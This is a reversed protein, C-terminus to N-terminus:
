GSKGVNKISGLIEGACYISVSRYGKLPTDLRHSVSVNTLVQITMMSTPKPQLNLRLGPPNMRDTPGASWVIDFGPNPLTVEGKVNLQYGKSQNTSDKIWAHWKGSKLVPCGQVNNNHIEKQQISPAESAIDAKKTSCSFLGLIILPAYFCVSKSITM